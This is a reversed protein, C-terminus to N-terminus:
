LGSFLLFSQKHHDTGAGSGVCDASHYDFDETCFLTLLMM